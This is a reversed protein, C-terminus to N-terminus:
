ILTRGCGPKLITIRIWPGIRTDTNSGFNKKVFGFSKEYFNSGCVKTVKHTNKSLVITHARIYKMKFTKAHSKQLIFQPNALFTM